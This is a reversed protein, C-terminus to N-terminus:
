KNRKRLLAGGLGAGVLYILVGPGTEPSEPAAGHVPAPTTTVPTTVVVPTTSTIPTTTIVPTTTTTVTTTTVPVQETPPPTEETPPPTEETPPPTEDEPVRVIFGDNCGPIGVEQGDRAWVSITETRGELVVGNMLVTPSTTDLPNSSVGGSTKFTIYGNDSRYRYDTVVGLDTNVDIKLPVNIYRGSPLVITPVGSEAAELPAIIELSSCKKTTETTTTTTTTTTTSTDPLQRIIKLSASCGTIPGGTPGNAQITIEDNTGPAPGDQLSVIKEPTRIIAGAQGANDNFIVTERDSTISYSEVAGNAAFKLFDTSPNFAGPMVYSGTGSPSNITLSTCVEQQDGPDLCLENYVSEIAEKVKPSLTGSQAYATRISGSFRFTGVFYDEPKFKLNQLFSPFGDCNICGDDIYKEVLKKLIELDVGRVNEGYKTLENAYLAIIGYTFKCNDCGEAIYEETIRTNIGDLFSVNIGSDGSALFPRAIKYFTIECPPCNQEEMKTLIQGYLNWDKAYYADALQTKLDDCSEETQTTSLCQEQKYTDYDSTFEAVIRAIDINEFGQDLLIKGIDIKIEELDQGTLECKFPKCDYVPLNSFQDPYHGDACMCYNLNEYTKPVFPAQCQPLLELNPINDPNISTSLGTEQNPIELVNSTDISTSLGVDQLPIINDSNLLDNTEVDGTSLIPKDILALGSEDVPHTDDVEGGGGVDTAEAEAEAEAKADAAAKEEATEPASADIVETTDVPELHTTIINGQLRESSRSYIVAGVVTGVILLVGFIAMIKGFTLFPKKEEKVAVAMEPMAIPEIPEQSPMNGSSNEM